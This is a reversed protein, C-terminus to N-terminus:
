RSPPDEHRPAMPTVIPINQNEPTYTAASPVNHFPRVSSLPTDPMTLSANTMPPPPIYPNQFVPPQIGTNSAPTNFIGMSVPLQQSSVIPTMDPGASSSAPVTPPHSIAPPPVPTASYLLGSSPIAPSSSAQSTSLNGIMQQLLQNTQRSAATAPSALSSTVSVSTSGAPASPPPMARFGGRFGGEAQGVLSGTPTSYSAADQGGEFM